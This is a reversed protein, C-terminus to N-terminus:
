PIQRLKTAQEFAYAIELLFTDQEKGTMFSVGIPCKGKCGFPISISPTGALAALNTHSTDQCVLADLQHEALLRDLLREAEQIIKQVKDRDKQDYHLSKELLEQGYRMREKPHKENFAILDTLSKIPAQYTTLYHNFDEEFEELLIHLLDFDALDCSMEVVEAGTKEAYSRFKDTFEESSPLLLGFRKGSLHHEELRSHEGTVAEYSLCIDAVTRALFGVTDLSHSIPVVGESSLAGRTPKFGVVSLVGAPALISGATETGLSFAALDTAMAVASGSSSGLPSLVVPAFPNHTQGKKSSYGCPVSEGMWYSLESLNAKGLVIAGQVKLSEVIPADEKPVFDKLAITGASTPLDKTNINEKVLVPMGKLPLIDSSGDWNRAEELARPNIESVANMGQEAQDFERIRFLYYATLEEYTFDGREIGAQLEAMSKQAMLPTKSLVKDLEVSALQADIAAILEEKGFAIKEETPLGWDEYEEM